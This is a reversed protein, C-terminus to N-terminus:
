GASKVKRRVRLKAKPNTVYEIFYPTADKGTDAREFEYNQLVYALMVKMNSSAFFRGPCAHTGIGFGLSEMGITVLQSSNEKGPEDRQKLYRDAQWEEPNPYFNPDWMRSMNTGILAGKPILTGDPLTVDDNAYRHSLVIQMNIEAARSCQLAFLPSGRVGLPKIRQTEKMVSDALKMHYLSTKEWGYEGLVQQAEQQLPEIWQPHRCLQLLVNSFLDSTTHVSAMSLALQLHAAHYDKGKATQYTWTIADNPMEALGKEALAIAEIRKAIVPKIIEKARKVQQRIRYCDKLFWHVYPRSWEPWRRIVRVAQFVNATYEKTNAQWEKNQCLEPGLFIRTSVQAIIDRLSAVLDVERWELFQILM